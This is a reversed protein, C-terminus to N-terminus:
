SYKPIIAYELKASQSSAMSWTFNITDGKKLNVMAQPYCERTKSSDAREGKCATIEKGQVKGVLISHPTM